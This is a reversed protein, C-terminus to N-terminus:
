GAERAARASSTVLKRETLRGTDDRKFEYVPAEDPVVFSVRAYDQTWVDPALHAYFKETIVVSKHGLMKSLRFIDGGNMVWHSAFTHRLDHFRLKKSLGTRRVALKYSEWVSAKSRVKGGRGPFVLTAGGRKLARERMLPLISDLIPISHGKGSKTTGKRGRHIRILRRELDVDAWQLHLLEDLRQGTGLALAVIDRVEGPCNQLLKTIEERTEIWLYERDGPQLREVGHCPNTKLWRRRVFYSFASSLCTLSGNATTGAFKAAQEDLWAMVDTDRIKTIPVKGLTPLIYLDMRTRYGEWSRHGKRDPNAKLFDIWIDVADSLVRTEDVEPALEGDRIKRHKVAHEQEAQQAEKRTGYSGVYKRKGDSGPVYVYFSVDGAKSTRKRIM